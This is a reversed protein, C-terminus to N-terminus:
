EVSFHFVDSTSTNDAEDTTKVIWYYINGSSITATISNETVSSLSETPPNESGFFVEFDVIDNDIDSGSWELNVTSGTLTSGNEPAVIDAPFPAYNVAGAGANYFKWEESMATADSIDSLSLVHWKYAIGREIIIDASNTNSEVTTEVDTNLNILVVEYKNAFEAENWRFTVESQTDNIIKGENCETNNEPFVLTAAM